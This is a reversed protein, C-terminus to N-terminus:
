KYVKEKPTRMCVAAIVPEDEVVLVSRGKVETQEM